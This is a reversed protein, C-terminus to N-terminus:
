KFFQPMTVYKLLSKNRSVMDLLTRCYLLFRKCLHVRCLGVRLRSVRAWFPYHEPHRRSIHRKLDGKHKSKHECHPCPFQPEKGCEFKQHLARSQKWRFVRGCDDCVFAGRRSDNEPLISSRTMNTRSVRPPVLNFTSVEPLYHPMFSAFARARLRSSSM